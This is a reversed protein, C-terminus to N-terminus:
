FRGSFGFTAARGEPATSAASLPEPHTRRPRTGVYVEPVFNLQAELVGLGALVIFGAGALLEVRHAVQLPENFLDAVRVNQGGDATSHIGLQRSVAAITAALLAAETTLFLAGLVRDGNQFQGIGFPLAAVWRQNQHVVVEQAALRELRQVRLRERRAREAKEAELRQAQKLQEDQARRVEELFDSKVQFFLDRVQAPFLVPDPSAMLPNQKM